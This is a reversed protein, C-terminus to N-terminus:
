TGMINYTIYKEVLKYNLSEALKLSIVSGANWHPVIKNELCYKILYCSLTKAINKRRYEPIVMINMEIGKSCVLASSAIGIFKNEEKYYFGIGRQFFDEPSKFNILHFSHNKDLYIEKAIELTIRKVKEKISSLEIINQIQSSRLNESSLIFRPCSVLNNGHLEKLKEIWKESAAMINSNLPIQKLMPIADEDESNGKIFYFPGSKLFYITPEHLNNVFIKGSSGEITSDVSLDIRQYESFIAFVKDKNERTLKFEHM